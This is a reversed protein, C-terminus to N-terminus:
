CGALYFGDAVSPFPSQHLVLDIVAYLLDGVVFLLQGAAFCWWILPRAPRLHRVGVLIAAVSSLGILDYALSSWLGELPLVFYLVVGALGGALYIRWARGSMTDKMPLAGLDM